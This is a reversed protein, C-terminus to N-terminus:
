CYVVRRSDHQLSEYVAGRCEDYGGRRVEKAEDDHNLIVHELGARPSRCVIVVQPPRAKWAIDGTRPLELDRRGPHVHQVYPLCAM